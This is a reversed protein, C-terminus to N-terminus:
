PKPEAKLVALEQKLADNESSLVAIKVVLDGVLMKLHEEATM